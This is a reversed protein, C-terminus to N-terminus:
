AAKKGCCKQTLNHGYEARHEFRGLSFRSNSAALVKSVENLTSIWQRTMADLRVAFEAPKCVPNSPKVFHLADAIAEFDKKSM